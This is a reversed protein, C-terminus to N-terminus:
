TTAKLMHGSSSLDPGYQKDAVHCECVRGVFRKCTADATSAALVVLTTEEKRLGAHAVTGTNQERRLLSYDM